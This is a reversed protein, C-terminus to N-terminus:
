FIRFYVANWRENSDNHWKGSMIDIHIDCFKQFSRYDLDVDDEELINEEQTVLSAAFQARCRPTAWTAQLRPKCSAYEQVRGPKM